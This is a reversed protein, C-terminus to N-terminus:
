GDVGQMPSQTTVMRFLKKPLFRVPVEKDGMEVYAKALILKTCRM